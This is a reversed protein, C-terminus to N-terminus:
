RGRDTKGQRAGDDWRRMRTRIDTHASRIIFFGNQQVATCGPQTHRSRHKDGARYASVDPPVLGAVDLASCAATELLKLAEDIYVQNSEKWGRSTRYWDLPVCSYRTEVGTRDFLGALSSFKPIFHCARALADAQSFCHEPVATALGSIVINDLNSDRAIPQSKDLM